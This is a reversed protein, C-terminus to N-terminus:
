ATLREVPRIILNVALPISRAMRAAHSSARSPTSSSLPRSQSEYRLDTCCGTLRNCPEAPAVKSRNACGPKPRALYETARFVYRAHGSFRLGFRGSHLPVPSRLRLSPSGPSGDFPAPALAPPAHCPPAIALQLRTITGGNVARRRRGPTGLPSTGKARLPGPIARSMGTFRRSPCAGTLTLRIKVLKALCVRRERLPPKVPQALTNDGIGIM